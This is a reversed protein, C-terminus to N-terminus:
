PREVTLFPVSLTPKPVHCVELDVDDVWVASAAPAEPQPRNLLAVYVEGATGLAARDFTHRVATWRGAPLGGAPLAVAQRVGQHPRRLEVAVADGAALVEPRLWLTLTASVVGPPLVALQAVAAYGFRDPGGAPPGLRLAAEGGHAEGAGRAIRSPLDGLPRWLGYAGKARVTGPPEAAGGASTASVASTASLVAGAPLSEFGGDSLWPTCVASPPHTATPGPGAPTRTATPRPTATTPTASPPAPRTATATATPDITQGSPGPCIELRVDDVRIYSRRGDGNNVVGFYIRLPQGALPRLSAGVDFSRVTWGDTTAPLSIAGLAVVRGQGDMLRVLRRDADDGAARFGFRITARDIRPPLTITQVISAYTTGNDPDDNRLGVFAAQAGSLVDWRTRAARNFVWDTGDAEFGGNVVADACGVAPTPVGTAPPPATPPVATPRRTPTASPRATPPATPPVATAGGMEALLAAVGTRIADLRPYAANGPCATHGPLADRHGMLGHAFRTGLLTVSAIPDVRYRHAKAAAFAVLASEAAAPPRVDTFTGLWALGISNTNFQLAHGGQTIRGNREGGFRGEYINGRHDILFNYGIDGWGRTVAHYHYIARVVAAPDVPDNETVTHHVILAKPITYEPPWVEAGDKFRLQENAGWGARKIVTDEISLAAVDGDATAAVDAPTAPVIPARPGADANFYHVELSAWAAAAPGHQVLRLQAFRGRAVVLRTWHDAAPARGDEDALMPLWESWAQGDDSVRVLVDGPPEAALAGAAATATAPATVWRVALAMFAFDARVVPSDVIELEGPDADAHMSRIASGDDATITGPSVAEFRDAGLRATGARTTPAADAGDAPAGDADSAADDGPAGDAPPPYAPDAPAPAPAPAPAADPAGARAGAPRDPAVVAGTYYYAVIEEATAGWEALVAAGEQSMGAGHGYRVDFPDPSAVSRLFGVVRGGCCPSAESDLTRDAARAFYMTSFLAGDLRAALGGTAEVAADTIDYHVPRWVQTRTTTDVNADLGRECARPDGATDPLCQAAAYTRAVIAQAKLAEFARRFVWGMEAPVVGKLYEDTAMAVIQGDPMLVRIVAPVETVAATATLRQPEADEVATMTVPVTVTLGLTPTLGITPTLPPRARLADVVRRADDPGAVLPPMAVDVRVEGDGLLPDLEREVVTVGQFGPATVRVRYAGPPLSIRYLGDDDTLADADGARVRAGPLPRGTVLDTVHGIIRSGGAEGVAAPAVPQAGAHGAVALALAALAVVALAARRAPSM